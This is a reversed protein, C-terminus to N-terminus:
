ARSGTGGFRLETALQEFYAACAAGYSWPTEHLLHQVESMFRDPEERYRRDWETFVASLESETM